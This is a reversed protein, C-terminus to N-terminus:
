ADGPEVLLPDVSGAREFGGARLRCSECVGCPREEDQYCSWTLHLPAGLELGLRVIAAKDMELLPTVIRIRTDPRTGTDVAAQFARFFEARCDPYGSSDEEVAGLCVEVAGLAEAWATAVSLIQANRFPVYTVPVGEGPEQDPVDISRDVLASAGIEVLAPHAAVLRTGLDYHDCIADFASRERAQTLQGYTVHLAAVSEHRAMTAALTVCSDLGGSLCVVAQPSASM